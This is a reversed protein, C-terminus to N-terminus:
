VNLLERPRWACTEWSAPTDGDYVPVLAPEIPAVTRGQFVIDVPYRFFGYEIIPPASITVIRGYLATEGYQNEAFGVPFPEPRVIRVKQGVRFRGM